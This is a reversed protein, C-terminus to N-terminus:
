IKENQFWGNELDFDRMWRVAQRYEGRDLRRSLPGAETARYAPFYQSMLSIATEKSLENSIFKLTERTGSIDEPLVLHRIILGRRAVGSTDTELLGVQRFMEKVAARNVAPYDPASSYRKANEEDSYRMDPLYIEILGELERLVDPSDYGSSNYVIPVTLGRDRADLIANAIQASYHTPTVFNINHAGRSELELM